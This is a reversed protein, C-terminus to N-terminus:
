ALPAAVPGGSVWGLRGRGGHGAGGTHRLSRPRGDHPALILSSPAALSRHDASSRAAVIDPHQPHSPPM